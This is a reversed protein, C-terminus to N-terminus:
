SCRASYSRLLDHYRKESIEDYDIGHCGCYYRTEVSCDVIIVDNSDPALKIKDLKIVVAKKVWDNGFEKTEEGITDIDGFEATVLGVLVELEEASLPEALYHDLSFKESPNLACAEFRIETALAQAELKMQEKQM